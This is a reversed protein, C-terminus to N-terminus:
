GAGIGLALRADQVLVLGVIAAAWWGAGGAHRGIWAALRELPAQLRAGLLVRGALLVLAPLVMVLVYGLVVAVTAPATLDAATIIGVAALFPLMSAVEVLAALLGVAVAVRYGADPGVLREQWRGARAGGASTPDSSPDASRRRRRGFWRRPDGCVGVVLLAVGLALEAWRLARVEGLAAGVEVLRGAGAVLALGVAAYFVAVTGLYAVFRGVHVRPAVLLVLPLVLTGISTSDVLALGMLGALVGVGM